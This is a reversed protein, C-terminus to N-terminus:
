YNCIGFLVFAIMFKCCNCYVGRVEREEPSPIERVRRRSLSPHGGPDNDKQLKELVPDTDLVVKLSPESKSDTIRLKVRINPTSQAGKTKKKTKMM